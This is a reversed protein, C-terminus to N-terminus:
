LHPTSRPPPAENVDSGDPLVAPNTTGVIKNLYTSRKFDLQNSLMLHMIFGTFVLAAVTSGSSASGITLPVLFELISLM